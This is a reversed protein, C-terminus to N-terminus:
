TSFHLCKLKQARDTLLKSEPMNIIADVKVTEPQKLNVADETWLVWNLLMEHVFWCRRIAEVCEVHGVVSKM